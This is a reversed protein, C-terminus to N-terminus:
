SPRRYPIFDGLGCAGYDVGSTPDFVTAIDGRCLRPSSTQTRLARGFDLRPCGGPPRNLYITSGPGDFIIADEGVSRNGRLDTLNVCTLPAGAVRGALAEALGDPTDGTAEVDQNVTCGAAVGALALLLMFRM